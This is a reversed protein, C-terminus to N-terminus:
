DERIVEDALMLLTPPITIGLAKATKLNIFLDFKTPQEVPLDAPKAGKLIKDVYAAARRWRDSFNSMYSMLGGAEVYRRGAYMGPLRHKLALEAVRVPDRGTTVCDFVVLADAREGTAAAFAAEVDDPNQVTLSQLHVGLARAAVLAEQWQLENVVNRQEASIPCWLVAVRSMGPVAEKLLELWKQTLDPSIATLGTVNGGPHALSAVIGQGVADGSGAMVIPITRTAHKAALALLGSQVVIVDVKLAVLEAALGPYQELTDAFRDEYTITQGEVYGLERLAQRLIEAYPRGVSDALLGIRPVKAPRQAEAALPALLLGLALFIIFGIISRRM